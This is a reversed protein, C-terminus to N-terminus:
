LSGQSLHCHHRSMTAVTLDALLSQEPRMDPRGRWRGSASAGARECARVRIRMQAWPALLRPSSAPQLAARVAASAHEHQAASIVAAAASRAAAAAAAAVEGFTLHPALRMRGHPDLLETLLAPPPSHSRPTCAPSPVAGAAPALPAPAALCGSAPAALHLEPASSRWPRLPPAARLQRSRLPDSTTSLCPQFFDGAGHGCADLRARRTPSVAGSLLPQVDQSRCGAPICSMDESATFGQLYGGSRLRRPTHPDSLGSDRAGAARCLLFGQAAGCSRLGSTAVCRVSLPLAPPRSANMRGGAGLAPQNGLVAAAFDRIAAGAPAAGLDLRAPASSASAHGAFVSPPPTSGHRGGLLDALLISEPSDGLSCGSRLV